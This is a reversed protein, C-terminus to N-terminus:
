SHMYVRATLVFRERAPEISTDPVRPMSVIRAATVTAGDHKGVMDVIAARVSRALASAEAQGTVPDSGAYCDCQFLFPILHDARSNAESPADLQTVRVWPTSRDSPTKGVVQEGTQEELYTVLVAEGNPIM